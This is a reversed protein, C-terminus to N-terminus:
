QPAATTWYSRLSELVSAGLETPKANKHLVDLGVRASRESHNRRETARRENEETLYGSSLLRCMALHVRSAVFCAHLIGDIPRPDSRLPSSYREEGENSLLAGDASLGFLMLHSSEHVLLDIISVASRRLEANILSGGWFFFTSAGNFLDETDLRASGVVILRLLGRVEDHWPPDALRLLSLGEEVERKCLSFTEPSAIQPNFHRESDTDFLVEFHDWWSASVTRDRIPVIGAEAPLAAAAVIDSLLSRAGDSSNSLEAVLKSYLCFVWPSVRSARLRGELLDRKKTGDDGLDVCEAIHCFSDVLRGRLKRDIYEIRATNPSLACCEHFGPVECDPSLQNQLTM